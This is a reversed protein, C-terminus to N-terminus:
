GKKSSLCQERALMVSMLEETTVNDVIWVIEDYADQSLYSLFTWIRHYHKTCDESRQWCKGSCYKFEWDFHKDCNSCAHFEKKCTPCIPM